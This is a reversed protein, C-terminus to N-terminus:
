YEKLWINTKNNNKIKTKDLTNKSLNLKTITHMFNRMKHNLLFEFNLTENNSEHM